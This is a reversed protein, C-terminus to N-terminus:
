NQFNRFVSTTHAICRKVDDIITYLITGSLFNTSFLVSVPEVEGNRRTMVRWMVLHLPHRSIRAYVNVYDDVEVFLVKRTM